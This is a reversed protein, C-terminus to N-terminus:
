TAFERYVLDHGTAHIRRLTAGFETIVRAMTGHIAHESARSELDAAVRELFQADDDVALLAGLAENPVYAGYADPHKFYALDDPMPERPLFITREFADYVARDADDPFRSRLNLGDTFAGNFGDDGAEILAAARLAIEHAALLLEMTQAAPPEDGLVSGSDLPKTERDVADVLTAWRDTDGDTCIQAVNAILDRTATIDIAYFEALPMPRNYPRARQAGQRM